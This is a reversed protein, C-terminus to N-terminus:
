KFEVHSVVYLVVAEGPDPGWPGLSVANLAGTLERYM